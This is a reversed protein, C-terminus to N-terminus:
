SSMTSSESCPKVELVHEPDIPAWFSPWGTGSDFKTDSSFLPLGGIASVYVGEKKNDHAYGARCWLM